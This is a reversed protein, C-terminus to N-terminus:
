HEMYRLFDTLLGGADWLWEKSALSVDYLDNLANWNMGGEEIRPDLRFQNKNVPMGYKIIEEPHADKWWHPTNLQLRPLLYANPNIALLEVLYKELDDWYFKDPELWGANLGLIPALLNIGSKKYGDATKLLGVSLAFFPYVEEENIFLRPGGRETKVEAKVPKEKKM